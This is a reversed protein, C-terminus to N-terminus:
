RILTEETKDGRRGQENRNCIINVRNDLRKRQLMVQVVENGVVM